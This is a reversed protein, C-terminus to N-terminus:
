EAEDEGNNARTWWDENEWISEFEDATEAQEAIREIEDRSICFGCHTEVAITFGASAPTFENYIQTLTM